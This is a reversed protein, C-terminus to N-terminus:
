RPPGRTARRSARPRRPLHRAGELENQLVYAWVGFFDRGWGVIRSYVLWDWFPGIARGKQAGTVIRATVGAFACLFTSLASRAKARIPMHFPDDGTSLARSSAAGVGSSEAM